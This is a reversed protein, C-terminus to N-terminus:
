AEDEPAVWARMPRKEEWVVRPTWREARLVSAVRMENSRTQKDRSLGLAHTLLDAMRVKGLRGGIGNYLYDLIPATWVDEALREAQQARAAVRVADDDLWLPEGDAERVAAEAWLQERVSAIWDADAGECRVPWFRRNGTTDRLYDHQNTTGILVGQRPREIFAKGYPPRYRDVQRSLFAKVTEVESRILGDLEGLELGWIGLLALAADRSGMDHPMADSFWEDGFLARCARSKGQDQAGELVPMADFKCGPRRVRRVAAVLFKTGVATHYEDRAAGFAVSIWTALREEGDWALRGLWDRVPHFRRMSAVALMAAETTDRSFKGSWARQLWGHVLAVDAGGWPRPYPGPLRPAGDQPVPPPELLLAADSFEDYGLMGGVRGDNGLIVLANAVTPYPGKEGRDVLGLWVDRGPEDRARELIESIRGADDPM